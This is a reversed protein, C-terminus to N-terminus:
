NRENHALTFLFMAVQEEVILHKSNQLLGREKLTDCFDIFMSPKMRLEDFCRSENGHLIEQVYAHGSLQSTRCPQKLLYKNYYEEVVMILLIDEADDDEDDLKTHSTIQILKNCDM